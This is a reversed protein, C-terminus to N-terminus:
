FVQPDSLIQVGVSVRRKEGGSIGRSGAINVGDQGIFTDAVEKLGLDLIVQDVAVDTNGRAHKPGTVLKAAFTLTEKVTLFPLLFDQQSVFGVGCKSSGNFLIDGVYYGCIHINNTAALYDDRRVM